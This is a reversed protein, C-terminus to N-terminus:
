TCGQGYGSVCARRDEVVPIATSIPNSATISRRHATRATTKRQHKNRKNTKENSKKEKEKRRKKRKPPKNQERNTDGETRTKVQINDYFGSRWADSYKTRAKIDICVEVVGVEGDGDHGGGVWKDM